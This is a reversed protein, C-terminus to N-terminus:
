EGAKEEGRAAKVNAKAAELLENGFAQRLDLRALADNLISVPIEAGVQRKIEDLLFYVANASHEVAGEAKKLADRHTLSTAPADERAEIWREADRTIGFACMDAADGIHSLREIHAALADREQEAKEAREKWNIIKTDM